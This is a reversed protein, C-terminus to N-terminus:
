EITGNYGTEYDTIGSDISTNITKFYATAWNQFDSLYGAETIQDLTLWHGTMADTFESPINAYGVHQTLFNQAMQYQVLDSSAIQASVDPKADPADGVFLETLPDGPIKGAADLFDKVVPIEGGLAKGLGFWEQRQEWAHKAAANDDDIVDNAAATSAYEILGNLQGASKLDGVAPTGSDAISHEFNARYHLANADAQQNLIKAAEDNTDLVTFLNRTNTLNTDKTPNDLIGYGSTHDLPNAIMDDVYPASATAIAQTLEPNVVGLPANDANAINLLQDQHDAAGIYQDVAKITEGAQTAQFVQTPDALSTPNAV